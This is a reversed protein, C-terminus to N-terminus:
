GFTIAGFKRIAITTVSAGWLFALVNGVGGLGLLGIFFGGVASVVLSAAFVPWNVKM